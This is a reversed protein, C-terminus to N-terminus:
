FSIIIIITFGEQCSGHNVGTAVPQPNNYNVDSWPDDPSYSTKYM